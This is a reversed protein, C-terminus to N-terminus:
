MAELMEAMKLFRDNLIQNIRVSEKQNVKEEKEKKTIIKDQKNLMKIAPEPNQTPRYVSRDDIYSPMEWFEMFEKEPVWPEPMPGPDIIQVNYKKEFKAKALTKNRKTDQLRHIRQVATSVSFKDTLLTRTGEFRTLPVAEHIPHEKQWQQETKMVAENVVTKVTPCLDPFGDEELHCRNVKNCNFLTCTKM